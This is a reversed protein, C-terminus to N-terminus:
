IRYEVPCNRILIRIEETDLQPANESTYEEHLYIGDTILGDFKNTPDILLYSKSDLITQRTISLENGGILLEYRRDGPRSEGSISSVEFEQCWVELIRSMISGKMPLSLVKGGLLENNRLATFVLNVAEEISFFFRYM